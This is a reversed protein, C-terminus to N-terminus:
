TALQKESAISMESGSLHKKRSRSALQAQRNNFVLRHLRKSSLKGNLAERGHLWKRDHIMYGQGSDFRIRLQRQQMRKGLEDSWEHEHGHVLYFNEQYRDEAHMGTLNETIKKRTEIPLTSIRPLLEILSSIPFFVSAGSSDNSVEDFINFLIVPIYLDSHLLFEKGRRKPRLPQYLASLPDRSLATLAARFFGFLFSLSRGDLHPYTMDTFFMLKDSVQVNYLSKAFHMLDRALGKDAISGLDLTYTFDYEKGGLLHLPTLQELQQVQACFPTLLSRFEPSWTYWTAEKNVKLRRQKPPPDIQQFIDMASNAQAGTLVRQTAFTAM